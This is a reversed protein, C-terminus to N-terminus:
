FPMLLPVYKLSMNALFRGKAESAQEAATQAKIAERATEGTGWFKWVLFGTYVVSILLMADSLFFLGLYVDSNLIRDDIVCLRLAIPLAALIIYLITYELHTRLTRFIKKPIIMTYNRKERLQRYLLTM